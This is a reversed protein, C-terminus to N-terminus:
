VTSQATFSFYEVEQAIAFKIVQKRLNYNFWYWVINVQSHMWIDATLPFPQAVFQPPPSMVHLRM